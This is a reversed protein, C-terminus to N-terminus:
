VTREIKKPKLMPCERKANEGLGHCNEDVQSPAILDGRLLELMRGIGAHSCGHVPNWTVHKGLFNKTERIAM